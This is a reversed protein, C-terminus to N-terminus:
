RYSPPLKMRDVDKSLKIRYEKLVLYSVLDESSVSYDWERSLTDILYQLAYSVGAEATFNVTIEDM